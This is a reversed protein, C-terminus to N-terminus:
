MRIPALDTASLVQGEADILELQYLYKQGQVVDTDLYNKTRLPLDALLSRGNEEIRYLRFSAAIQPGEPYNWRIAVAGSKRQLMLRTLAPPSPVELRVPRSPPSENGAWDVAVVAYDFSQGPSLAADVVYNQRSPILSDTLPLFDPQGAPKRLVRYGQLLEGRAALDEWRITASKGTWRVQLSLPPALTVTGALRISARDSLPGRQYSDSESQVAYSYIENTQLTTTDLFKAQSDAPIFGSVQVLEGQYGHARFVYFGRVVDGEAQWALAIGNGTQIASVSTPAEAEQEGEYVGFITASRHPHGALDNIGLFYYYGERAEDIPDSYATDTVPMEAILTFDREYHRSRYLSLSQVREPNTIQWSLQLSRRDEATRAQFGYVVPLTARSLNGALIPHSMDGRNGLMDIPQIRYEYVGQRALTTDTVVLLLSDGAMGMQRLPFIQEVASGSGARRFVLFDVIGEGPRGLWRTQPFPEDRSGALAALPSHELDNPQFLIGDQAIPQGDKLLRYQYRVDAEAEADMWAFGMALQIAPQRFMAQQDIERQERIYQWCLELSQEKDTLTQPFLPAYAEYQQLWDRVSGPTELQGIKKWRKKEGELREIELSQYVFSSAPLQILVGKPTSWLPLITDQSFVPTLCMALLLVLIIYKHSFKM